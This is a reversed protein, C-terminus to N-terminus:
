SPGTRSSPTGASSRCSSGTVPGWGAVVRVFVALLVVGLCWGAVVDLPWHYGRRVLGYSVGLVAAAGVPVLARRASAPRTWPLLLLVACGYAVLATTTHGSPFYGTAPPVVPTGPRDTLMKVPVVVLPVLAMLALAATAPVWWRVAGARRARRAAWGAALALVPVAVEVNGLDSLFESFGDPRVLERSVREDLGVLPGGAVVQWTILAFLGLAVLVLAVPALAAPALPVPM